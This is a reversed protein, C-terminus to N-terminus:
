CQLPAHDSRPHRASLEGHSSFCRVTTAHETQERGYVACLALRIYEEQPLLLTIAFATPQYTTSYYHMYYATTATPSGHTYTTHHFHHAVPPITDVLKRRSRPRLMAHMFIVRKQQSWSERLARFACSLRTWPDSPDDVKATSQFHLQAQDAEFALKEFSKAHRRIPPSLLLLLLLLFLSLLLGLLTGTKTPLTVTNYSSSCTHIYRPVLISSNHWTGLEVYSAPRPIFLCPARLPLASIFVDM